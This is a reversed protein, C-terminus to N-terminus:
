SINKNKKNMNEIVMKEKRAREERKHNMIEKPAELIKNDIEKKRKKNAKTKSRRLLKIKM